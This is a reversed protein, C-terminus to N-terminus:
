VRSSEVLEIKLKLNKSNQTTELRISRNPTVIMTVYATMRVRVKTTRRWEAFSSLDPRSFKLKGLGAIETQYSIRTSLDHFWAAVRRM